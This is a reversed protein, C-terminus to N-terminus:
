ADDNEKRVYAGYLDSERAAITVAFEDDGWSKPISKFTVSPEGFYDGTSVVEYESESREYIVRDGVKLAEFEERTM